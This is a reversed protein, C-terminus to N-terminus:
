AIKVAEKAQQHIELVIKKLSDDKLNNEVIHAMSTIFGDLRVIIQKLKQIVLENQLNSKELAIKEVKLAILEKEIKEKYELFAATAFQRGKAEIDLERLRIREKSQTSQNLWKWGGAILAVVLGGAGADQLSM